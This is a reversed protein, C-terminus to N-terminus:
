IICLLQGIIISVSPEVGDIVVRISDGDVVEVVSALQKEQDETHSTEIITVTPQLPTPSVVIIYPTQTPYEAEEEFSGLCATLAFTM